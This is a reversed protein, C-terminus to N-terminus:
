EYTVSLQLETQVEEEPEEGEEPEPEEVESADLVTDRCKWCFFQSALRRFNNNGLDAIVREQEQQLDHWLDFMTGCGKCRIPLVCVEQKM